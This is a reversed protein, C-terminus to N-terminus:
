TKGSFERSKSCDNAAKEHQGQFAHHVFGATHRGGTGAKRERLCLGGHRLPPQLAARGSPRYWLNETKAAHGQVCWQGELPRNGRRFSSLLLMEEYSALQTHECRCTHMHASVAHVRKHVYTHSRSIAHTEPQLCDQGYPWTHPGGTRFHLTARGLPYGSRM